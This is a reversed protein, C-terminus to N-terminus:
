ISSEVRVNGRAESIGHNMCQLWILRELKLCTNPLNQRIAAGRVSQGDMGLISTRIPRRM